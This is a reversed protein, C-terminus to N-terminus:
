EEMEELIRNREAIMAQGVRYCYAALEDMDDAWEDKNGVAMEGALATGAFWDLLSMGDEHYIGDGSGSARPFAPGGDQNRTM